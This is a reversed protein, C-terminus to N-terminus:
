KAIIFDVQQPEIKVLKSFGPFRVLNVPLHKYGNDKWKQLDVTAEFNAEGINVYNTLATLITVHVREPILRIDDFSPNNIVKIPVEVTKQTFEDVPVMYDVSNPFINLNAKASKGLSVKSTIDANVDQLLVSDTEWVEIRVIDELPGTVTVYEPTLKINGSIGSQKAFNINYALKIPIRKTTRASFDFYLTDPQVSVVRQNSEFQRNLSLLQDTFTVYNNKNLMRLDVNVSQPNIRLKSFLLQWGTGEVQLKVTDSQLSHFAKNQPFNIYNVLTRVQYVYQNSFAFFLWAATALCLCTFFLALRQRETKNLKIFPM